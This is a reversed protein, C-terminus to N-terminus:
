LCTSHTTNTTVIVRQVDYTACDCGTTSGPHIVSPACVDDTDGTRWTFCISFDLFGDSNADTCPLEINTALTTDELALEGAGLVDGCMDNQLKADQTWSVAGTPPSVLYTSTSELSKIRCTGTLSDGGDTAIYWGFDYRQTEMMITGVLDLVITEGLKCSKLVPSGVTDLIVEKSRCVLSSTLGTEKKFVDEMCGENCYANPDFPCRDGSRVDGVRTPSLTIRTPASSPEPSAIPAGTIPQHTIPAATVPAATVPAATVPAPTVPAATVPSETVPAATVPAETVPKGTIKVPAATVPSSTVPAHTIPASTVPASTVPAATVPAATVPAMTVPADTTPANTAPLKIIEVESTNFCTVPNFGSIAKGSKYSPIGTVTAVNTTNAELVGPVELLYFDGPAFKGPIEFEHLLDDAIITNTLVTTGTNTVNLCYTVSAAPVDSPLTTSVLHEATNCSGASDDLYVKNVITVNPEFFLPIEVKFQHKPRGPEMLYGRNILTTSTLREADVMVDFTVEHIDGRRDLQYLNPLGTGDLPFPTGVTDDAVPIKTVGSDVSYKTSGIVYTSQDLVPDVIRFKSALIKSQGVNMFRITYTLIDGPAAMEANVTKTVYISKFPVTVTGLDMSFTQNPTSVSPDQGWASAIDVPPLDINPVASENLRDWKRAFIIAGSMDTDIPDRIKISELAQVKRIEYNTGKNQYDIYIYADEKPAVWVPSRATLNKCQNNSCGYGLGILVQPTLTTTPVLPFGWDYWQGTTMLDGGDKDETDTFSLAFFPGTGHLRTGTGDIIIPSNMAAGVPITFTYTSANVMKTGLIYGSGAKFTMTVDIPGPASAPNYVVCKTKGFSDGVPSIYDDTWAETAILSFWRMEYDSLIEGTILDAQVPKDATFKDGLYAQQSTSQGKQLTVVDGSPLTVMTEEQAQIFVVTYNWSKSQKPPRVGVPVEFEYGWMDTDLVEVGGALVAGPRRPYGARTIAIPYSAQVMDGGDYKMDNLFANQNRPLVINSTIQITEGAMLVDAEDTCDKLKISPECGNTKNKDGWVETEKSVPNTPDVEFGDEWHDWWVVTYDTSIAVSLLTVIPSVANTHIKHLVVDFLQQEPLPIFFTQMAVTKAIIQNATQGLVSNGFFLPAMCCGLLVAKVGNIQM